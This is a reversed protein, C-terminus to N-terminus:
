VDHPTATTTATHTAETGAVAEAPDACSTAMASNNNVDGTYNARCHYSGAQTATFPGSSYDGNGHDVTASSTFVSVTCGADSYLTFSITGTPNTGLTLHSLFLTPYPVLTSRPPPPMM